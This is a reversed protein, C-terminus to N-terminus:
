GYIGPTSGEILVANVTKRYFDVPGAGGIIAYVYGLEKLGHLALLLLATGLRRGRFEEALGMPGFFDRRTCEYAAFGVIEKAANRALFCTIPQRAFAVSTEDAWGRGFTQEIFNRVPTLDWPEARRLRFGQEELARQLPEVPPLQLLNVLMDAM